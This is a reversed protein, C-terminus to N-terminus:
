TRDHSGGQTTGTRDADSSAARLRRREEFSLYAAIGCSLVMVCLWIELIPNVGRGTPSLEGIGGAAFLLCGLALWPWSLQRALARPLRMLENGISVESRVSVVATPSAHALAPRIARGIIAPAIAESWMIITVSPFLFAAAATLWNSHACYWWSAGLSAFMLLMVLLSPVRLALRARVLREMVEMKQRDDLRYSREPGRLARPGVGLGSTTFIWAVDTRIFQRAFVREAVQAADNSDASSM